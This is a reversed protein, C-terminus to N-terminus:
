NHLKNKTTVFSYFYKKGKLKDLYNLVDIIKNYAFVYFRQINKTFFHQQQQCCLYLKKHDYKNIKVWHIPKIPPQDLFRITYKKNPDFKFFSIDEM